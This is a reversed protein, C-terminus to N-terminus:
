PRIKGRSAKWGSLGIARRATKWYVQHGSRRRHIIAAPGSARDHCCRFFVQNVADGFAGARRMGPHLGHNLFEQVLDDGLKSLAVAQLEAVKADKLGLGRRGPSCLVGLSQLFDLYRSPAPHHELGPPQHPLPHVALPYIATDCSSRGLFLDVSSAWSLHCVVARIRPLPDQLARPGSVGIRGGARSHRFVHSSEPRLRWLMQSRSGATDQMPRYARGTWLSSAQPVSFEEAPALCAKLLITGGISAGEAMRLSEHRELKIGRDSIFRELRELYVGPNGQARAFEPLPKGDTQSIDFVYATKFTSITEDEDKDKDSDDPPVHRRWVVPAMIAIGHEGKKVHRGLRQWARFGAVHTADPKQLQILIANGVSYRHFRGMAKLYQKLTESIGAEVDRILRELAERAIKRVEDRKM